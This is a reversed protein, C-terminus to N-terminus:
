VHSIVLDTAIAVQARVPELEGMKGCGSLGVVVLSMAVLKIIARM